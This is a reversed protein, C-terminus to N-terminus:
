RERRLDTPLSLSVVAINLLPANFPTAISPISATISLLLSMLLAYLSCTLFASASSRSLRSLSCARSAACSKFFFGSGLACEGSKCIWISLIRQAHWRSSNSTGTFKNRTAGLTNQQGFCLFSTSSRRSAKMRCHVSRLRLSILMCILSASTPLLPNKDRSM